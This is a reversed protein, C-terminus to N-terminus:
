GSSGPSATSSPPVCQRLQRAHHRRGEGGRFRCEIRRQKSPGTWAPSNRKVESGTKQKQNWSVGETQLESRLRSQTSQRLGRAPPLPVAERERRRGEEM